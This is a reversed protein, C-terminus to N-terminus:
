GDGRTSVYHHAAILLVAMRIAARCAMENPEGVAFVGAGLRQPEGATRHQGMAVAKDPWKSGGVGVRVFTPQPESSQGEGSRAAFPLICWFRTV